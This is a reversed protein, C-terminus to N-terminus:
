SARLYEGIARRIVESVSVHEEAARTLLARKLEPDLRVSEVSAAASGLPPRGGRRRRLLTDVDYGREAEDAMAEVDADTIPAGDKRRGHDNM